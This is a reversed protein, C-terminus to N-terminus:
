RSSAAIDAFERAGVPGVVAQVQRPGAKTFVLTLALHEGAVLPGRLGLLMVHQGGPKLVAAGGAPVLIREVAVMRAVGDQERIEHLQCLDARDCSAGALADAPGDNRITLYVGAAKASATTARAWVAEVVVSSTSVPAPSASSSSGASGGAAVAATSSGAAADAACADCHPEAAAALACSLLLVHLYNTM